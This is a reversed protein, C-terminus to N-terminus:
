QWLVEIKKEMWPFYVHSYTSSIRSVWEEKKEIDWTVVWLEESDFVKGDRCLIEDRFSKLGLEYGLEEEWIEVIENLKEDILLLDDEPIVVDFDPVFDLSLGSFLKPIFFEEEPVEDTDTNGTLIYYFIFILLNQKGEKLSNTKINIYELAKLIDLIYMSLFVLGTYKLEFSDLNSATVKQQELVTKSTEFESLINQVDVNPEIRDEIEKREFTHLLLSNLLHLESSVIIDSFLDLCKNHGLSNLINFQNFFYLLINQSSIHPSMVSKGVELFYIFRSEIGKIDTSYQDNLIKRLQMLEEHTQFVKKDSASFYTLLFSQIQPPFILESAKRSFIKSEIISDFVSSYKLSFEYVQELFEDFNFLESYAKPLSFNTFYYRILEEPYLWWPNSDLTQNVVISNNIAPVVKYNSLLHTLTSWKEGEQQVMDKFFASITEIEYTPYKELLEDMIKNFFLDVSFVENKFVVSLILREKELKSLKLGNLLFTEILTVFGIYGGVLRAKLKAILVESNLALIQETVELRHDIVISKRVAPNSVLIEFIKDELSFGEPSYWKPFEHKELLYLFLDRERTEKTSLTFFSFQNQSVIEESRFYKPCHEALRQNLITRELGFSNTFLAEITKTLLDVNNKARNIKVFLTISVRYFKLVIDESVQSGCLKDIFQKSFILKSEESDLGFSELYFSLIRELFEFDFRELILKVEDKPIANFESIIKIFVEKNTGKANENLQLIINQSFYDVEIQGENALLFIMEDKVQTQPNHLWSHVSEFRKLKLYNLLRKRGFVFFCLEEELTNKPESHLRKLYWQLCLNTIQNTEKESDLLTLLQNYIEKGSLDIEWKQLLKKTEKNKLNLVLSSIYQANDSIIKSDRFPNLRNLFSFVDGSLESIDISNKFEFNPDEEISVISNEDMANSFCKPYRKTYGEKWSKNFETLNFNSSSNSIHLILDYFYSKKFSFQFRNEVRVLFEVFDSISKEVIVTEIFLQCIDDDLDNVFSDIFSPSSYIRNIFYNRLSERNENKILNKLGSTSQPKDSIFIADFSRNLNKYDATKIDRNHKIFIEQNFDSKEIKFSYNFLNLMFELYSGSTEISPKGLIFESSAYSKIEHLHGLSSELVDFCFGTPFWSIFETLFNPNHKLLSYIEVLTKREKISKLEVSLDHYLVESDGKLFKVLSNLLDSDYDKQFMVKSKPKINIGKFFVKSLLDSDIHIFASNAIFLDVKKSIDFVHFSQPQSLLFLYFQREFDMVTKSNFKQKLEVVSTKFISLFSQDFLNSKEFIRRIVESPFLTVLRIAMVGVKNQRCIELLFAKSEQDSYNQLIQNIEEFTIKNLEGSHFFNLLRDQIENGSPMITLPNEISLEIREWESILGISEYKEIMRKVWDETNWAEYDNQSFSSSLRSFAFNQYLEQYDGKQFLESQQVLLNELFLVKSNDEKQVLFRHLDKPSLGEVLSQIVLSNPVIGSCYDFFYSVHNSDIINRFKELFDFEYSSYGNELFAKCEEFDPYTSLTISEVKRNRKNTFNQKTEKVFSYFMSNEENGLEHTLFDLFEEDELNFKAQLEIWFDYMVLKLKANDMSLMSKLSINSQYTRTFNILEEVELSEFLRNLSDFEEKIKNQFFKVRSEFKNNLKLYEESLYLANLLSENCPSNAVRSVALYKEEESLDTISSLLRSWLQSCYQILESPILTDSNRIEKEFFELIISKLSITSAIFPALTVEFQELFAKKQKIEISFVVNSFSTTLDLEEDQSFETIVENCIDLLKDTKIEMLSDTIENWPIPQFINIELKLKENLQFILQSDVENTKLINIVKDVVAERKKKRSRFAIFHNYFSPYNKKHKPLLNQLERNKEVFNLLPLYNEEVEGGEKVKSEVEKYVSLFSDALGSTQHVFVKFSILDRISNSIETHTSERETSFRSNLKKYICELVSSKSAETTIYKEINKVLELRNDVQLEELNEQLKSFLNEEITNLDEQKCNESYEKVLDKLNLSPFFKILFQKVFDLQSNFYIQLKGSFDIRIYPALADNSERYPESETFAVKNLKIKGIKKQIKKSLSSIEVQFKRADFPISEQKMRLSYFIRLETFRNYLQDALLNSEKLSSFLEQFVKHFYTDQIRNEKDLSKDLIEHLETPSTENILKQLKSGSHFNTKIKKLISSPSDSDSGNKYSEITGFTNLKNSKIVEHLVVFDRRLSSHDIPNSGYKEIFSFIISEVKESSVAENSEQFVLHMFFYLQSSTSKLKAVPFYKEIIRNTGKIFQNLSQKEKFVIFNEQRWVELYDESNLNHILRKVKNSSLPNKLFNKDRLKSQFLSKDKVIRETFHPNIAYGKNLYLDILQEKKYRCGTPKPSTINKDLGLEYIQKTFTLEFNKIIKEVSIADINGCDIELKEIEVFDSESFEDLVNEIIPILKAQFLELFYERRSLGDPSLISFNINQKNIHHSM